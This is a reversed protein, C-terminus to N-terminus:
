QLAFLEDLCTEVHKNYASAKAFSQDCIICSMSSKSCINNKLHRNLGSRQTFFKNCKFCKDKSIIQDRCSRRMLHIRLQGFNKGQFSCNLCHLNNHTRYKTKAEIITHYCWENATRFTQFCYDCQISSM